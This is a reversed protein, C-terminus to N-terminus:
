PAVPVVLMAAIACASEPAAVPSRASASTANPKRAIPKPNLTLATGNWMHVGSTYSPAGIGIVANMDAAVFIAANPARIRTSSTDNLASAQSQAGTIQHIAAALTTTPLTRAIAWVSM